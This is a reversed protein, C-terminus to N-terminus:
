VKKPSIFFISLLVIENLNFGFKKEIVFQKYLSFPFEILSSLFFIFLITLTASFLFPLFSLTFQSYQLWSNLFIIEILYSFFGGFTLIILFCVRVINEIIRLSIKSSTYNISKIHTALSIKEKFDDPIFNTNNKLYKLQRIDLYVQTFFSLAIFFLLLYSFYTENM